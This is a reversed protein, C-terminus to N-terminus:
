RQINAVTPRDSPHEGPSADFKALWLTTSVRPDDPCTGSELVPVLPLAALAAARVHAGAALLGGLAPQLDGEECGSCLDTLLPQVRDRDWVWAVRIM